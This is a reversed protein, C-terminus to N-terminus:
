TGPRAWAPVGGTAPPGLGHLSAVLDDPLPAEVDLDRGTFPHPFRLRAAHLWPRGPDALPYGGKGYVRDGVLPHGVSALHVRIQHTRGTDLTVELLTVQETQWAALRRLHTRASRGDRRVTMRTPHRPDRGIPAEITGTAHAYRGTAMALYTRHLSRERLARQLRRHAAPDRAVILLGSTGRDLRHVIGWRSEEPLADLDPFRALLGSALTGSRNGAGPHVVVGAPKDVVIVSDDEYAVGFPVGTEPGLDADPQPATVVVVDGARVPDSPAVAAGGVTADGAIVLRKATSRSVGALRAVVLDAREGGLDDPVRFTTV